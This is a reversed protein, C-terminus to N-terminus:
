QSFKLSCTIKEQVYMYRFQIQAFKVCPSITQMHSLTFIVRSLLLGAYLIIIVRRKM